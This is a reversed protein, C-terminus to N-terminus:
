NIITYVRTHKTYLRTLITLANLIRRLSRTKTCNRRRFVFIIVNVTFNSSKGLRTNQKAVSSGLAVLRVVWIANYYSFIIQRTRTVCEHSVTHPLSFTLSRSTWKLSEEAKLPRKENLAIACFGRLFYAGNAVPCM